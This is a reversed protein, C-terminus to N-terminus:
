DTLPALRNFGTKSVRKAPKLLWSDALSRTQPPGCTAEPFGVLTDSFLTLAPAASGKSTAKVSIEPM